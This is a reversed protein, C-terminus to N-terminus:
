DIAELTWMIKDGTQKKTANMGSTTEIIGAARKQFHSRITISHHGECEYVLRVAAGHASKKSMTFQYSSGPSLYGPIPSTVKGHLVASEANKLDCNYRSNNSLGIVVKYNTKGGGVNETEYQTEEAFSNTAFACAIFSIAIMNKM